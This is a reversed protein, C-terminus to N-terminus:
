AKKYEPIMSLEEAHHLVAERGKDNMGRLLRVLNDVLGYAEEEIDYDGGFFFLDSCSDKLISQYPLNYKEALEESKKLLFRRDNRLKIRIDKEEEPSEPRNRFSERLEQVALEMCDDYLLPPTENILNQWPVELADAIKKINDIKPKRKGTEWFQLTQYRVNIKDALEKQTMVRLTRYYRIWKGIVNKNENENNDM